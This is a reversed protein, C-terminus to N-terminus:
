GEKKNINKYNQAIWKRDIKGNANYPMEKIRVIDTPMMYEPVYKKLESIIFSEEKKKGQYVMVIRDNEKDYVIVALTIGDIKNAAFEIEGLEIRYGMHKIQFDARSLYEMEGYENLQVIDGTKYVIEPYNSNLPNQVFAASTKKSDNVYGLAVFSGRVYLEGKDAAKGNEDIILCDCNDCHVGIPVSRDEPIKRNLVYYCCIDTTETPGFLNAFKANPVNEVWYNLQKTPMVEGAFMILKLFGADAVSFTKWNAVICLASPVWYITNVNREKLFEILKVPFSFLKKPIINLTAGSRVTAFVDSVSMSFYFPTQNGFVTNEDISFASCLWHTYALVSRHSVITGKPKGTSGSTLIVYAPDTDIQKNRISNLKEEDINEKVLNEYVLLNLSFDFSSFEEFTDESCLVALPKIKEILSSIREKPMKTDIVTYYCGGYLAGFMAELCAVSKNIFVAVAGKLERNALASGIKKANLSFDFYSASRFEDAFVIKSGHEFTSKELMELINKM